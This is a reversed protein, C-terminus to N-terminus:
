GLGDAFASPLAEHGDAAELVEGLGTGAPRLVGVGEEAGLENEGAEAVVLRQSEDAVEGAM